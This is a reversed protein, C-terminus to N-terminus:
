APWSSFVQPFSGATRFWSVEFLYAGFGLCWIEFLNYMVPEDGRGVPLCARVVFIVLSQGGGQHPLISTPTFVAHGGEGGGEGM